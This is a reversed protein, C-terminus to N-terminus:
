SRTRRGERLAASLKAMAAPDSRIRRAGELAFALLVALFFAAVVMLAATKILKSRFQAVSLVPELVYPEQVLNLAGEAGALYRVAAVYKPYAVAQAESIAPNTGDKKQLEEYHEVEAQAAPRLILYLRDNALAVASRIFAVAKGGDADKYSLRYDGREASFSFPREDTRLSRGGLTRGEVLVARVQALAESPGLSALEIGAVRDVGAAALADRLLVPDNFVQALTKGADSGETLTRAAPSLDAVGLAEVQRREVARRYQMGPLVLIALAAAALAAAFVGLVVARWRLLVALLDVLSLEDARSVDSDGM